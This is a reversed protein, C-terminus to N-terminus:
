YIGNETVALDGNASKLTVGSFANAPVKETGSIQAEVKVLTGNEAAPDTSFVYCWIASETDFWDNTIAALDIVIDADGNIYEIATYGEKQIQAILDADLYMGIESTYDKSLDATIVLVKGNGEATYDVFVNNTDILINGLANQKNAAVYNPDKESFSNGCRSCKYVIRGNSRDVIRYNHGLAPIEEQAKLVENCRACVAGDTLGKETCTAPKGEVVQTDHGLAPIVEDKVLEDGCVSCKTGGKLGDETCTAAVDDAKVYTHATFTYSGSKNNAPNYVTLTHSGHSLTINLSYSGDASVADNVRAGEVWVECMNTINSVTYILTGNSNYSVSNVVPAKFEVSFSAYVTKGTAPVHVALTHAGESLEASISGSGNSSMTNNTPQGDLWIEGYSSLGSVTYNVIGRNYSATVVLESDPPAFTPDVPAATPEATPATTPATTPETTASAGIRFSDSGPLEGDSTVLTVTYVGDALGAVNVTKSGGTMTGYNRGNIWVEVFGTNESTITVTKSEADYSVAALSASMFVLCLAAVVLILSIKKMM